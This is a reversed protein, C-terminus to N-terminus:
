QKYIIVTPVKNQM